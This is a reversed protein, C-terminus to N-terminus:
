NDGDKKGKKMFRELAAQRGKSNKKKKKGKEPVEKALPSDSYDHDGDTNKSAGGQKKAQLAALLAPPMSM